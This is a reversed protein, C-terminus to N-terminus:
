GAEHAEVWEILRDADAVRIHRYGTEVLNHAKLIRLSKALTVASIGLIGAFEEQLFDLRDVGGRAQVMRIILKALMMEPSLCRMDDLMGLAINLRFTSQEYLASLIAPNDLLEAFSNQPIHDIVTKGVAVARHERQLEQFCAADGYTQGTHIFGSFIDEGDKRPFVLKVTGEVVFDIASVEEGREHILDGNRYKKRAGLSSILALEDAGLLETLRPLGSKQM